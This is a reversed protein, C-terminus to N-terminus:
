TLSSSIARHFLSMILIWPFFRMFFGVNRPRTKLGVWIKLVHGNLLIWSKQWCNKCFVYLVGAQYIPVTINQEITMRVSRKLPSNESSVSEILQFKRKGFCDSTLSFFGYKKLASNRFASRKTWYDTGYIELRIEFDLFVNELRMTDPFRVVRVDDVIQVPLTAVVREEYKLLCVLFENEDECDSRKSFYEPKIDVHINSITLTGRKDFPIKHSIYGINRLKEIENLCVQIRNV